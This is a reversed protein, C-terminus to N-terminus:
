AASTGTGRAWEAAAALDPPLPSAFHMPAGTRPHTFRLEAAHLFQRPVRKALGAAWAREPGSFGRHREPAYTRDGVVPHGLHLLHVRIQHTRGTELEARVLDAARWRELRFFRTRAPRGAPVVAMRKRETPHRGIPADVPVEDHPLHGWAAALYARRIRRAKLEASLVRHAEDHKAVVMLGSTDKDLRHVIGPRLVGGIGSLDGVAHLLANVLTGTPNGPAPHVVLGPPKDIVLLDEDQHVITLPIAEPTLPSREPPPIRVEIRDGPAPRDRKRPVAGNVTVRGDEILQAARSRSVDLRAALWTDLREGAEDGAVLEVHRETSESSTM